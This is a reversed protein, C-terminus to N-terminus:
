PQQQPAPLYATTSVLGLDSPLLSGVWCDRRVGKNVLGSRLVGEVTFGAREAVARSAANGVEARWEVRDMGARTFAWRTVALAGETVYGRGRHEPAAWFGIEGTGLGRLTIGVMAVLPASGAQEARGDRGVRGDVRGDRGGAVGVGAPDSVRADTPGSVGASVPGSPVADAPDSPRADAPASAVAHVLFAGFTFMTGNRWGDPVQQTLFSEAHEPLYPSPVTTWRRILPDQCAALVAPADHAGVTRLLLRPTTLTEPEMRHNQAHCLPCAM